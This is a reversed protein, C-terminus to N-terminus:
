KLKEALAKKKTNIEEELANVEEILEAEREKAQEVNDCGQDKLRALLSEVAGEFRSKNQKATEIKQKLDILQKDTM